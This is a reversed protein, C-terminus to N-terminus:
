PPGVLSNFSSQILRLLSFILHRRQWEAPVDGPGFSSSETKQLDFSHSLPSALFCSSNFNVRVRKFLGLLFPTKYRFPPLFISVFLTAGSRPHLPGSPFDTLGESIHLRSTTGSCFRHLTFFKWPVVGSCVYRTNCELRESLSLSASRPSSLSWFLDSAGGCV